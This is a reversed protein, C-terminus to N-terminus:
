DNERWIERNLKRYDVCFRIAGCRKRVLVIPASWPSCSPEIVGSKLMKDIEESAIGREAPGLRRARQKIPASDGTHITHRVLGTHGLPKHDSAFIDTYQVLLEKLEKTQSGSLDERAEDFLPQLHQLLSTTAEVETEKDIGMNNLVASVPQYLGASTSKHVVVTEASANKVRIPIKVKGQCGIIGM